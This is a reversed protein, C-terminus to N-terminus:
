AFKKVMIKESMGLGLALKSGRVNIVVPGDHTNNIVTFRVGKTLGMEQLKRRLRGNSCLEELEVSTNEKVNNLFVCGEPLACNNRYACGRGHKRNNTKM